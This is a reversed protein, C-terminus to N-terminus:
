AKLEQKLENLFRWDTSKQIVQEPSSKIMGVERLRLSYFRVADEPDYDRWRDYPVDKFSQLAYGYNPTFGRDVVSRAAREPESACLDAAELIARLARKTAVPHKQLYARNVTLMCCFYQSWPRDTATNVIVHGVGRARLEQPEPPNAMFADIEGAPLKRIADSPGDFVVSVDRNLDVGVYAAMAALHVHRGSRETSVAVRKGKLDGITHITPNAFLEYCGVHIGALMVQSDGAEAQVIVTGVASMAMDIEGAAVAMDVNNTTSPLEIYQVDTFGKARLLDEALYQPAFCLPAFKALRITTTELETERAVPAGPARLGACGALLSAGALSLGVGTMTQVFRRRTQRAILRETQEM